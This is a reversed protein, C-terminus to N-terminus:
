NAGEPVAFSMVSAILARTLVQHNEQNIYEPLDTVKHYHPNDSASGANEFFGMAPYGNDFFSIYDSCCSSSHGTRYQPLYLASFANVAQVLWGTVSRDKMGITVDATPLKWGLM